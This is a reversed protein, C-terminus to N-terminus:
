SRDVICLTIAFIFIAVKQFVTYM